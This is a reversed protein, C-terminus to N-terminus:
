GHYHRETVKVSYRGLLISIREMPVGSLLLESAFSDRFRHCHADRVDALKFLRALRRRWSGVVAEFKGVGNWFFQKETVRPTLISAFPFLMFVSTVLNM